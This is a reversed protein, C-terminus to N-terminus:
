TGTSARGCRGRWRYGTGCRRCGWGVGGNGGSCAQRRQDHSRGHSHRRHRQRRGRRCAHHPRPLHRARRLPGRPLPPRRGRGRAPGPRPPPLHGAAACGPGTGAMQEAGGRVLRSAVSRFPVDEDRGPRCIVLLVRLHDGAAQPLSVRGAARLHTRVFEGAGLALVSDTGPDRLLEWPLGPAEAPDTDVEVRVHPLQARVDKWIGAADLGTFVHGFLSTGTGALIAEADRALQPAPDAPFEAYDELYWRVKEADQEGARYCFTSVVAQRAPGDQWTVEVRRKGDATPEDSIRLVPTGTM